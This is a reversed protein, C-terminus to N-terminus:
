PIANCLLEIFIPSSPVLPSLPATPNVASVNNTTLGAAVEILAVPANVTTCYVEPAVIPIPPPAPASCNGAFKNPPLTKLSPKEVTFIPLEAVPAILTPLLPAANTSLVTIWPLLVIPIPPIILAAAFLRASVALPSIVWVAASVAPVAVMLAPTFEIYRTSLRFSKSVSIRVPPTAVTYSLSSSVSPM